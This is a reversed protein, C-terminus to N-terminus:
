KERRKVDRYERMEEPSIWFLYLTLAFVAFAARSVGRGSGGFVGWGLLENAWCALSVTLVISIIARRIRIDLKRTRLGMIVQPRLFTAAASPRPCVV